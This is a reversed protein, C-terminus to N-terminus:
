TSEFLVHHELRSALLFGLYIAVIVVAYRMWSAANAAQADSVVAGLPALCTMGM